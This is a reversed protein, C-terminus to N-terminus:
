ELADANTNSVIFLVKEARVQTGIKRIARRINESFTATPEAQAHARSGLTINQHVRAIQSVLRAASSSVVIKQSASVSSSRSPQSGQNWNPSSHPTVASLLVDNNDNRGAAPKHAHYRRARLPLCDKAPTTSAETTNKAHM